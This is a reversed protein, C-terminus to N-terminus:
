VLGWSVGIQELVVMVLMITVNGTFMNFDRRQEFVSLYSYVLRILILPMSVGVAFLLRHEGAEISSFRAGVLLLLIGLGLWAVLFLVLSAKTKPNSMNHMFDTTQHHRRHQPHYCHPHHNRNSQFRFPPHLPQNHTKISHNVRSLINICAQIMPSLGISSCVAWTIYLNESIPNSITALYCRSGIVQILSFIAFFIWGASRTFGHYFAMWLAIFLTPIYVLLALLALISLGHRYDVAM